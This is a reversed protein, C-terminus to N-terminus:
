QDSLSIGGLVSALTELSGELTPPHATVRFRHHFVVQNWSWPQPPPKVSVRVSLWGGQEETMVVRIQRYNSEAANM